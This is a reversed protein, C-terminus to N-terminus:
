AATKGTQVAADHGYRGSGSAALRDRRHRPGDANEGQSLQHLAPLLQRVTRAGLM